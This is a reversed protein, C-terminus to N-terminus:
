SPLTLSQSSQSPAGIKDLLDLEKAESTVGISYDVGTIFADQTLKWDAGKDKDFYLFVTFLRTDENVEFEFTENSVIFKDVSSTPILGTSKTISDVSFTIRFYNCRDEVDKIGNLSIM